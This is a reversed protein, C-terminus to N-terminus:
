SNEFLRLLPVFHNPQFTQLKCCSVFPKTRCFLIRFRKQQTNQIRQVIFQNFFQECMLGGIDPYFYNIQSKLVSSLGLLFMFSCGESSVCNSITEHKVPDIFNKFGSDITSHKLSLYSPNKSM